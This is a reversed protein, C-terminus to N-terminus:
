RPFYHLLLEQSIKHHIGQKAQDLLIGWLSCLLLFVLLTFPRKGRFGHQPKWLLVFFFLIGWIGLTFCVLSLAIFFSAPHYWLHIEHRGAPVFLGKFAGYTCLLPAPKGNVTAYFGEQYADLYNVIGDQSTELTFRIQNPTYSQVEIRPTKTPPSSQFHGENQKIKKGEETSLLTYERLSRKNQQLTAKLDSSIQYEGTWYVKGGELNEYLERAPKGGHLLFEVIALPANTDPITAPPDLVVLNLLKQISSTLQPEHADIKMLPEQVYHQFAFRRQHYTDLSYFWAYTPQFPFEKELWNGKSHYVRIELCILALLLLFIKKKQAEGAKWLKRLLGYGALTFVLFGLGQQWLMSSNGYVAVPTFEDLFYLALLTSQVKKAEVPNRQDLEFLNNKQIWHLSLLFSGLYCLAFFFFYRFVTRRWVRSLASEEANEVEQTGQTGQTGQTQRHQLLWSLSLVVVASLCFVGTGLIRGHARSYRLPFLIWGVIQSVGASSGLAYLLTFLFYALFFSLLRHQPLALKNKKWLLLALFFLLYASISTYFGSHVDSFWPFAFNCFLSYFNLNHTDTWDLSQSGRRALVSLVEQKFPLLL